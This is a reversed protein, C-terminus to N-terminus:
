TNITAHFFLKSTIKLIFNKLSYEKFHRQGFNPEKSYAITFKFRQLGVKKFKAIGFNVRKFQANIKSIKFILENSAGQFKAGGVKTNERFQAKRSKYQNKPFRHTGDRILVSTPFSYSVAKIKPKHGRVKFIFSKIRSKAEKKKKALISHSKAKM